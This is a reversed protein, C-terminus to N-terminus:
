HLKEKCAIWSDNVSIDLCSVNEEVRLKLCLYEQIRENGHESTQCFM